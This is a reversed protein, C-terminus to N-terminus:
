ICRIPKPLGAINTAQAAGNPFLKHLYISNGKDTGYEARIANVLTRTSPSTNYQTYFFRLLKIVEWHENSLIINQRQALYNATEQSWDTFNALYGDDTLNINM